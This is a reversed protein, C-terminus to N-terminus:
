WQAGLGLGAYFYDQFGVELKLMGVEKINFRVGGGFAIVPVVPPVGEVKGDDFGSSTDAGDATCPPPFQGSALERRCQSSPSPNYRTVKGLVIGPGIGLGIFPSFWPEVDWFWRSFFHISLLKLEQTTWDADDLPDNHDLWWEAPMSLDAWDVAVGLEYEGNRRWTFEGGWAFNPHGSSWHNAHEQWFWSLVFGPIVIAHGRLNFMYENSKKDDEFRASEDRDVYQASAQASFMTCLLVAALAAIRSM